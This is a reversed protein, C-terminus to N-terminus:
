AGGYFPAHGSAQPLDGWCQQRTRQSHCDFEVLTIEAACGICNFVVLELRGPMNQINRAKVDARGVLLTAGCGACEVKKNWNPDQWGVALIEM